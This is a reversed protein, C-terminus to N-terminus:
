VLFDECECIDEADKKLAAAKEKLQALGELIEDWFKIVVLITATVAVVAGLIKWIKNCCKM